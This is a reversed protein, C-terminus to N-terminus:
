IYLYMFIYYVFHSVLQSFDKFKNISGIWFSHHAAFFIWWCWWINLCCFWKWKYGLRAFQLKSLMKLISFDVDVCNKRAGWKSQLLNSLYLISLFSFYFLDRKNLRVCMTYTHNFKYSHIQDCMTKTWFLAGLPRVRRTSTFHSTEASSDIASLKLHPSIRFM